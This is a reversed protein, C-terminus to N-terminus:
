RDGGVGDEEAADEGRVAEGKDRVSFVIAAAIIQLFGAFVFPLGLWAGGWNLGVTFVAALIPGASLQGICRMFAVSLYVMSAHEDDAGRIGAVSAILSIVSPTYSGSMRYILVALIFLARTPALGTAFSGIILSLLGFRTLWIDKSIASRTRLLRKSVIPFLVAIVALNSFLTTSSILGAEGWTFGYRRVSYQLRIINEHAGIMTFWLSVLLLALRVNGRFMRRLGDAAQKVAARLRPLISRAGGGDVKKKPTSIDGPLAMALLNGFALCGIALCHTLVPGRKMASYALPGSILQNVIQLASLYFFITSRNRETSISNAVTYQMAEYGVSGGGIVNIAACLWIYKLDFTFPNLVVGLMALNFLVQGFFAVVLLARAGYRDVFVGYPIATVLGPLMIFTNLWGMTQVLRAQVGDDEKCRKDLYPETVDPLLQQCAAGEVLANLGVAIFSMSFDVTMNIFFGVIAIRLFRSRPPGADETQTQLSPAADYGLLLRREEAPPSSSSAM